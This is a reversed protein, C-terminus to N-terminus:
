AIWQQVMESEPDFILLRMRKKALLVKGIEDQFIDDFTQQPIALYLERDPEIVEMVDLYLIYQGIAEELDKMESDGCFTKIEVAIKHNGKIAALVREAGLDVYLDKRGIRLRLPDDTITWGDKELAHRVHPHYRDRASM